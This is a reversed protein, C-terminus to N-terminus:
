RRFILCQNNAPMAQDLFLSLGIGEALRCVAEFDRIGSLPNRSKLSFDFSANSLSTFEGGYKFPGYVILHGDRQLCEGLGAFLAQVSQWSMIHLTNATYVLDVPDCRWPLQNVDLETPGYINDTPRAAFQAQLRGLYEVQDTSHWNLNPMNSAFYLAHQGTGSGIELVETSYKLIGSIAELIPRKNREAAESFPLM